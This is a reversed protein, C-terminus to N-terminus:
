IASIVSSWIKVSHGNSPADKGMLVTIFMFMEFALTRMICEKQRVRGLRRYRLVLVVSLAVHCSGIDLIGFAV